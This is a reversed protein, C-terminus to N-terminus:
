APTRRAAPIGAEPPSALAWIPQGFAVVAGAADTIQLRHFCDDRTDIPVERSRQLDSAGLTAVVSTGPNPDATGAYDVPGRVVQVAGGKPLGEVDIRLTRRPQGRVSVAGMPVADDVTMDLTGSFSGLYSAYVRGALLADMFPREDRGSSWVGTVYRNQQTAWDQGSHDDSVGNGTLFLGNRSLTDWAALHGPLSALGTHGYGVEVMDAGGAGIGLLDRAIAQSGTEGAVPIAAPHNICAVGGRSHIFQTVSRRIDGPVHDLGSIDGYPYPDQPGGFQNM